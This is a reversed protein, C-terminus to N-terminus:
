APSPVVLEACVGVIIEALRAKAGRPIAQQQGNKYLLTIENEDTDFGLEAGSVDNAVMVDCGKRHLKGLANELVNETEAAFGVLLGSFGMQRASGLCDPTRELVLTVTDAQKKIKQAEVHLPRYDAVAAAFIAVDMALLHAQTAAYMEQATTVSILSVGAPALLATPGSILTVEHGAAVAAAAIAYGMKGSSRNSLYRVPDLAERTPGATILFQM